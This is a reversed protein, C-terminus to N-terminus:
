CTGVVTKSVTVVQAGGKKENMFHLFASFIFCTYILSHQVSFTDQNMRGHSYIIYVCSCMESFVGFM